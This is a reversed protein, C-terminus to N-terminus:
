YYDALTLSRIAGNDLRFDARRGPAGDELALRQELSWASSPKGDIAIVRDGTKFGAAQAPSNPSVFMVKFAEGDRELSLGLRDKDFPRTTADTNPVVYLRNEPLDVMLRFRRLLGVGIRGAIAAPEEATGMEPFTTPVNAFMVGGFDVQRLVAVTDAREGGVASSLSASIRRDRLLKAPGSYVSYVELALGDGLDFDVPILAGGEVRVVTAMGSPTRLLPVPTANPPKRLSQPNLFELKRGAFDIDVVLENFVEDGLFFLLPREAVKSMPAVDLSAVTLGKLTLDGAEASVKPVFGALVNGHLGAIDQNNAASLGISAAFARDLVSTTAGSDLVATVEHGNVKAPFLILRGGYLDFPIWGSSTAGARFRALPPPKPREFVSPEIASNVDVATLKISSRQGDSSQTTKAFPVRVGDVIRWDTLNIASQIGRDTIRYGVLAGTGPNIFVDYTSPDGFTVRVVAIPQGGIVTAPQLSVAAGGFGRLADGFEIMAFRHVAREGGSQPLAQGSPNTVWSDSATVGSSKKYVGFDEDQRSRGDRTDWHEFARQGGPLEAYGTEHLSTLHAYAEGGRWALYRDVVASLPSPPPADARARGALMAALAMAALGGWIGARRM